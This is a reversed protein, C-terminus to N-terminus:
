RVSFVKNRYICIHITIKSVFSLKLTLNYFNLNTNELCSWYLVFDSIFTQNYIIMWCHKVSLIKKQLYAFHM